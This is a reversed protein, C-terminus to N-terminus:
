HHWMIQLIKTLCKKHEIWQYDTPDFHVPSGGFCYQPPIRCIASQFRCPVGQPSHSDKQREGGVGGGRGWWNIM